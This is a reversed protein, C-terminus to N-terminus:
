FTIAIRTSFSLPLNREGWYKYYISTWTESEEAIHAFLSPLL